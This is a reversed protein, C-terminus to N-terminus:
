SAQTENDTEYVLDSFKRIREYLENRGIYMIAWGSAAIIFYLLFNSMLCIINIQGMTYTTFIGLLLFFIIIPWHIGTMRAAGEIITKREANLYIFGAVEATVATFHKGTEKQQIKFRLANQGKKLYPIISTDGTKGRMGQVKQAIETPSFDSEFYFDRRFLIFEDLFYRFFNKPQNKSKPM